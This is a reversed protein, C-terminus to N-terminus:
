SLHLALGLCNDKLNSCESFIQLLLKGPRIPLSLVNSVATFFCLSM